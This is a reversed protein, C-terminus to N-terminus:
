LNSLNRHHISTQCLCFTGRTCIRNGYVLTSCVFNHNNMRAARADYIGLAEETTTYYPRPLLTRNKNAIRERKTSRADRAICKDTELPPLATKGRRRCRARCVLVSLYHACWIFQVTRFQMWETSRRIKQLFFCITHKKKIIRRKANKKNYISKISIKM